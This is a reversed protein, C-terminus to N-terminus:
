NDGRQISKLGKASEPRSPISIQGPPRVLTAKFFPEKTTLLEWPPPLLSVHIICYCFFM